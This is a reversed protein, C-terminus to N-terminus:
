SARRPLYRKRWPHAATPRGDVVLRPRPVVPAPDLVPPEPAPPRVPPPPPTAQRRTRRQRRGERAEIRLRQWILPWVEEWRGSCVAARLAVMPNVNPRAWHMGSGKLRAEVVLKNASEITGSGIPYGAALFEAYAIHARRKELYQLVGERTAAAAAPDAATEVPLERLAALVDDPNAWKLTHCQEAVWARTAPTGPGWVADAATTLHEAAHPFDLIRVADPRHGALFNQEWEAGDMPACVVGATATGRRHTELHAWRRFTHADALRSFYSLETTQVAEEGTKGLVREVTGIALSKVEAWEGHVLPVMAGDVSLQQVAPGAPVAGGDRELREVAATEVAVLAAGARETWTRATERAPHVGTFAAFERPVQPFPVWTSLRVLQEALLPSWPGPGLEL